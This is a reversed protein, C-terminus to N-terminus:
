RPQPRRSLVVILTGISLVVAVVSLAMVYIGYQEWFTPPPKTSSISTTTAEMLDEYYTEHQDIMVVQQRFLYIRLVDSVDPALANVKFQLTVSGGAPIMGSILESPTAIFLQSGNIVVRARLDVSGGQNTVRVTLDSPTGYIVIGPELTLGEIYIRSAQPLLVIQATSSPITRMVIFLSFGALM